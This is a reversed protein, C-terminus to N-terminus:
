EVWGDRALFAGCILLTIVTIAIPVVHNQPVQTYLIMVLSNISNMILFLAVGCGVIRKFVKKVGGEGERARVRPTM